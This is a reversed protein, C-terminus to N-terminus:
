APSAVLEGADDGEACSPAARASRQGDLGIRSQEACAADGATRGGATGRRGTGTSPASRVSHLASAKAKRPPSIRLRIGQTSGTSNM